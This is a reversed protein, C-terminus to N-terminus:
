HEGESRPVADPTENQERQIRGAGAPLLVRVTTGAGPESVLAVAGGHTTVVEYVTTLGLGAGSDGDKTSFFPEFARSRTQEDMGTGTDAVEVVVYSEGDGPDVPETETPTAKRCRVTLRGGGPMADHANICLNVLMQYLEGRVGTLVQDPEIEAEVTVKQDLSRRMLEVVEECVSSLEVPGPTEPGMRAFVLLRNSLELARLSSDVIDTVSEQVDEDGLTRNGPLAELYELSSLLAGLLNNFDHAIGSGLRGIAEMKQQQLVQEELPDDYTFLLTTNAGVSIRDGFALARQGQLAEGNIWTGNRSGLDSAYFRQDTERQVCVHRRSTQPDEVVVDCEDARGIKLVDQDVRYKRGVQAGSLVVLRPRTARVEPVVTPAPQEGSWTAEDDFAEM